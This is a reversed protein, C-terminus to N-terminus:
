NGAKKPMARSQWIISGTNSEDLSTILTGAVHSPICAQLFSFSLLTLVSAVVSKVM